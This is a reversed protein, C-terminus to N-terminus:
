NTGDGDARKPPAAHGQQAQQEQQPEAREGVYGPREKKKQPRDLFADAPLGVHRAVARLYEDSVETKEGNHAPITYPRMGPRTIKYHKTGHDCTCGHSRLVPLVDRLRRPM